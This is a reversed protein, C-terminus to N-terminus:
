AFLGWTLLADQLGVMWWLTWRRAAAMNRPQVTRSNNVFNADLLLRREPDVVASGVRVPRTYTLERWRAEGDWPELVEEGSEFTVQINVPFVGDGYRRVLVRTNFQGDDGEASELEEVAYDFVASGRYTQDFFRTLDRGSERQLSQLLQDPAPHGFSGQQFTQRLAAQVTPWGLWRELTHLWLAPKDYALAAVSDPQQRYSLAAIPDDALHRRYRWVGNLDTERKLLFGNFVWPVLGGFFYRDPHVVPYDLEIARATVYSTIGEDMWAHEFENTGAVGYWFQHGAEHIVVEEPTNLTISPTVRWRTGATFLTPYEMGGTDSQYAPDVITLHGYPYPGFWNGFNLLAIRAAEVHRETQSLHEPQMLLRVDVPQLSGDEFRATRVVFDPSTTWAFDHVDEQMYRYTTTGNSNDTRSRELGTAGLIWGSPVTLTVDYVGYDAFFETASHFQHTSWGSDELVGIKPFWQAIFYYNGVVGTRDFPRPVRATWAIDVAITEGTRVPEPLPVQMVTRDRSNGDDPAIFRRANSLDTTTGDRTLRISSLDFRALDRAPRDVDRSRRAEKMWTSERDTWANWYLHFQLETAPHNTINRWTIREHATITRARVDLSASITYNANRPSQPPPPPQGHAASACVLLGMVAIPCTFRRLTGDLPRPM